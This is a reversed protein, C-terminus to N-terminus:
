MLRTEVEHMEITIENKSDFVKFCLKEKYDWDETGCRLPTFASEVRVRFEEVDEDTLM